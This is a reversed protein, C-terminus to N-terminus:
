IFGIPLKRHTKIPIDYSSALMALLYVHIHQMNANIIYIVNISINNYLM